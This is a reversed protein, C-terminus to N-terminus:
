EILRYNLTSFVELAAKSDHVNAAHVVVTLLLGNVDTIIHRKRGKIKKGGDVGREEGGTRTAKVSQSDILGVSPSYERGQQKRVTDRLIDNIKEITGDLKWKNYYYYVLQWKPFNLPLMRWQCGTKLLYYIANIIEAISHKRKRIKNELLKEIVQLQKETLNTSYNAKHMM